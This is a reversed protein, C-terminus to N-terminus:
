MWIFKEYNKGRAAAPRKFSAYKMCSILLSEFAQFDSM